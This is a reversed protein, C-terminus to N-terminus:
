SDFISFPIWFSFFYCIPFFFRLQELYAFQSIVRFSKFNLQFKLVENWFLVYRSKYICLKLVKWDSYKFFIFIFLFVFIVMFM